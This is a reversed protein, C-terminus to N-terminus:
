YEIIILKKLLFEFLATGSQLLHLTIYSVSSDTNIVSIQTILVRLDYSNAMGPAVIMTRCTAGDDDVNQLLEQIVGTCTRTTLFCCLLMIALNTCKGYSRCM